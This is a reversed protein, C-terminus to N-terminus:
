VKGEIERIASMITQKIKQQINYMSDQLWVRKTGECLACDERLYMIVDKGDQEIGSIANIPIMLSKGHITTFRVLMYGLGTTDANMHRGGLSDNKLFYWKAIRIITRMAVFLIIM